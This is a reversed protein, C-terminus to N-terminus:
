EKKGKKDKENKEEPEEEDVVFRVTTDDVVTKVQWFRLEGTAQDVKCKVVGGREGYEKKYAAAISSEIVELVKDPELGKEEAVQKLAKSLEKINLMKKFFDANRPSLVERSYRRKIAKTLELIRMIDCLLM